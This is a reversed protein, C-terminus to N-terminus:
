FLTASCNLEVKFLRFNKDIEALRKMDDESLSLATSKHNETIRKPNVTKPIVVM